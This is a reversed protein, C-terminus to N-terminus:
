TVGSCGPGSIMSKGGSIPQVLIQTNIREKLAPVHSIIGILIGDKNLSALTELASELSDEDLTGFGEDLFLSDVRVNRSAMKSLGLALALSVLFSEGGSLNKSSRIEGAQYHDMVNLELPQVTDRILLYRDTMKELQQNAHLVMLEFTLGQAFNRYKKGDASGVLAHLAGWRESESKQAAIRGGITQQKVQAERNASLRQKNAGIEEATMKLSEQIRAQATQLDAISTTTMNKALEHNLRTERDKKRTEIDARRDDLAKARLNLAHRKDFALRSSIFAAENAFGTKVCSAAFRNELVKLESERNILSEQLATLRTQCENVRQRSKECGKRGRKENELAADIGAEIRTEEEDPNKNGYQEHRKASCSKLDGVILAVLAQKELLSECWTQLIADTSTLEAAGARMQKEIMAHSKLQVDWNKQRQELSKIIPNLDPNSGSACGFLRLKTAISKRLEGDKELVHALEQELRIRSALLEDKKHLLLLRQTENEQLLAATVQEKREYTAVERELQEAKKILDTRQIIKKETDDLAPINGQAFPHLHSGCLPCPKGDELKARENELSAIKRLYAMERMLHDHEVRYESLNRGELAVLLAQKAKNAQLRELDLDVQFATGAAVQKTYQDSNTVVQQSLNAIQTKLDSITTIKPLYKVQEKIGTLESILAADGANTALYAEVNALEQSATDQDIKLRDRSIKKEQIQDEGKKVDTKANKLASGKEAITQDLARITKIQQLEVKQQGRLRHITEEALKVTKEIQEQDKILAPLQAQCNAIGELDLKQQYRKAVLTAYESELEVAQKARQLIHRDDAFGEIDLTTVESEQNIALLENKLQTMGRWWAIANELQINQQNLAKETQQQAGITQNLATEEEASLLVIGDTEARLLEYKNKEERQRQHVRKSIESYIATGTIQELIPAREDASAKLFATFGGQALLMSRTFRDFDMGTKNEITSAVERKKAELVQGSSADAIEHKTEGLKGTPKRRARQQSWHCRFKGERTEFTVEAFCAGTQRSMVENGSKSISKLRPTRGYLALCLADLITSKGAGTPGIIAFIGDSVYQPSAFNICWEGVLSNLHKFRLELIKM